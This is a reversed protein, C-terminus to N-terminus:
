FAGTTSVVPAKAIYGITVQQLREVCNVNRYRYRM